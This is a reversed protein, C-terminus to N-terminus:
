EPILMNAVARYREEHLRWRYTPTNIATVNLLVKTFAAEDLQVDSVILLGCRSDWRASEVNIDEGIDVSFPSGVVLACYIVQKSGEVPIEENWL